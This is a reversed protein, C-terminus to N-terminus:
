VSITEYQIVNCQCHFTVAPGTMNGHCSPGPCVNMRRLYPLAREPIGSAFRLATCLQAPVTDIEGHQEGQIM